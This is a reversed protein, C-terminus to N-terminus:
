CSTVPVAARGEPTPVTFLEIPDEFGKLQHFRASVINDAGARRRFADSMLVSKGLAGCATQIRSLLNVDSGIVTFDLRRGSGINGYSVKGHHLAVSADVREGDFEFKALGDLIQDTAALAQKSATAADSSPFFALVADGMFKLVEGGQSTIAPVVLDFCANLLRLVKEDSLRNSLETFGRLDFLLLAAEITEIEGKRIRGALIRQATMPGIYTDFLSLEAQRLVRIECTNRLAPLIREIAHIDSRTFGSPRKTGFGAASVPGDVNCLPAIMLQVLGRGEFVDIHQWPWMRDDADLVMPEKSQMVKLLASAAYTVKMEHERDHIEVPESPAWALTRGLIEPHLTTLHLTLRDIPLGIRLLRRGLGAVLGAEDVAHCDDGSLWEVVSLISAPDVDRGGTAGQRGSIPARVITNMKM